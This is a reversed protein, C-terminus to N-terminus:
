HNLISYLFLILLIANLLYSLVSQVSSISKKNELQLMLLREFLERDSFESLPRDTGTLERIAELKKLAVRAAYRVIKNKDNKKIIALAEFIEASPHRSNGLQKVSRLRVKDVPSNLDKIASQTDPVM